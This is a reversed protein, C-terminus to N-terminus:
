QRCEEPLVDKVFEPELARYARSLTPHVPSAIHFNKNKESGLDVKSSHHPHVM